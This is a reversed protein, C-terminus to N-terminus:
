RHSEDGRAARLERLLADFTLGAAPFGSPASLRGARELFLDNDLPIVVGAPAAAPDTDALLLVRAGIPPPTRSAGDICFRRLRSSVVAEQLFLFYSRHSRAGAPAKITEEVVVELLRGVTERFIGQRSDTVSGALIFRSNAHLEAPELGRSPGLHECDYPVVASCDTIIADGEPEAREPPEMAAVFEPAFLESRLSGGATVAAEVAVWLPRGSPDTPEPAIWAPVQASAPHANLATWTFCAFVFAVRLLHRVVM